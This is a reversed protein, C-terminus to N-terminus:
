ASWQQLLARYRDESVSDIRVIKERSHAGRVLTVAGPPVGAAEALFRVCAQNARGEQAPAALRLKLAGDGHRGAWGSRTAGPQVHLV